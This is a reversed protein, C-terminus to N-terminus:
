FQFYIFPSPKDVNLLCIFLIIAMGTAFWWKRRIKIQHTNPLFHMGILAIGIGAFVKVGGNFKVVDPLMIGHFSYNWDLTEMGELFVMSRVTKLAFDFHEARFFIYAFCVVLFVLYRWIWSKDPRFRTNDKILREFALFFGHIAGWVIFMWSAGHWLGGLLMTASLNIYTRLKGKRNGGLPIYLYDRLFESLTIHWRRWYESFSRSKYPSNFNVPFEFGLMKGLGIAMESYASFDFYIQFTYSLVGVWAGIFQTEYTESFYLEAQVAFFDAIFLKRFLGSTFYFIGDYFQSWNIRQSVKRLQEDMLSYRVIPGAILQPFMSVYASFHLLSGTPKANGRYIDLSYSMSQFTYFSIGVPLIVNLMPKVPDDEPLFANITELFFDFYKFFALAGLNMVISVTLWRRASQKNIQLREFIKQGVFYDLVTSALMLFVFRYDWYGYFVFSMITLFAMRLKANKVAYWGILITPFFAILFIVSNFLM